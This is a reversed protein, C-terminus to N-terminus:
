WLLEHVQKLYKDDVHTYIQTTTISAHWLLTQVSRIDAWKKILSTAFSHRLTHPTVKKDIGALKAYYKVIDEISNRTIQTNSRFNSLNIFLYPCDDKRLEIFAEIKERAIKTFFVSRMKSWKGIVWFQNSDFKIDKIKVSVLESVRLGTWYLTFLIPEDRAQKLQKKEHMVPMALLRQIEGDELFNVERPPIKWLELKDPSIVDLDHKLCFKLFARLAVVHYNITKKSLGRKILKTRFDLVDLSKIETVQIDGIFELFRWLWLGYNERTKASSNKEHELYLQFTDLMASLSRSNAAAM